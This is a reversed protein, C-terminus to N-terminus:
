VRADARRVESVFARMRAVDKVGPALEIGSSVDVAYPRLALIASAVNEPRLGGALIFPRGLRPARDWDFNKGTGGATGPAHSDLLIAAADPYAAAAAEVDATGGMGIAKVYPLSFGACFKRPESGHFQLATPKFVNIVAAVQAPEPDLFLAVRTIFPPLRAAIACARAPSVSRPSSRYFVFGLADVGLRVAAQADEPRTIGCFKIRTRM